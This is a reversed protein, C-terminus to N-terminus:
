TCGPQHMSKVTFGVFRNDKCVSKEIINIQDTREYQSQQQDCAYQHYRSQVIQETYLSQVSAMEQDYISQRKQIKRDNLQHFPDSFM